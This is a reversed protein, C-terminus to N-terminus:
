LLSIPWIYILEKYLVGAEYGDFYCFADLVADTQVFEPETLIM